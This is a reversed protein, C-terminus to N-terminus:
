PRVSGKRKLFLVAMSFGDNELDKLTTKSVRRDDFRHWYKADGSANRDPNRALAVYHGHDISDGSHMAAAYAEYNPPVQFGEEADPSPRVDEHDTIHYSKMNFDSMNLDIHTKLKVVKGGVTFGFRPFYLVLYNPLHAFRVSQRGKGGCEECKYDPMEEWTPGFNMTDQLLEKLGVRTPPHPNRDSPHFREPFYVQYANMPEWKRNTYSCKVCKFITFMLGTFERSFISDNSQQYRKWELICSDMIPMKLHKADADTLSYDKQDRLLNLEDMLVDFIFTLFEHADHQRLSGGFGSAAKEFPPLKKANLANVYNLFTKPMVWDYNGSWLITLLNALNRTLLQPPNDGVEDSKKPPRPTTPYRYEDILYKRLSPTASLCQLVSNVYCTKACYNDLGTLGAKPSKPTITDSVSSMTYAATPGKESIGSSRQRPLAPAPRAPPRPVSDFQEVQTQLSTRPHTSIMSEQISPLEPYKRLFDETTRAYSFEESDEDGEEKRNMDKNITEDWQKEEEKSFPRSQRASNSRPLHNRRYERSMTVRGVPRAPKLSNGGLTASRQLSNPGLLDIWADLGGVLLLPRRSLKKDYSYDYVAKSFRELYANSYAVSSNPKMSASSQDYFVVLDFSCRNEYLKQEFDPSLVNSDVLEEASIDQRLTVPEICIISKAMIHGRDFEERTRLDVLLIQLGKAVLDFLTQASINTEKPILNDLSKKVNQPTGSDEAKHAPSFYDPMSESVMPTPVARSVPPAVNNKGNGIYSANRSVSSPLNITAASDGAPSYIADPPKPMAPIQVDLVTKTSGPITTPVSPMERPGVPRITTPPNGPRLSSTSPVGLQPPLPVPILQTRIRPDQTINQPAVSRLRAFRATLDTDPAHSSIPLAKGHLAEPKPQVPPKKRAHDGNPASSPLASLPDRGQSQHRVNNQVLKSAGNATPTQLSQARSHGSEGNRAAGNLTLDSQGKKIPLVGSRLNDEKIDKVVTDFKADQGKIRKVLGVYVRHLDGQNTQLSPYDKHRPIIEAVLRSAKLHEQLAIDPRRFDLLTDAQKALVEADQLIKRIPSNIDVDPQINILDEIHPYVRNHPKMVGTGNIKSTSDPSVPGGGNVSVSRSHPPGTSISPM